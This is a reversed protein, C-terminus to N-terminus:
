QDENASIAHKRKRNQNKKPSLTWDKPLGNPTLALSYENLKPRKYALM